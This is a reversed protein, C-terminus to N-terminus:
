VLSFDKRLEEARALRGSQACAAVLSRAIAEDDPTLQLARELPPVAADPRGHALYASGLARLSAALAADARRRLEGIV